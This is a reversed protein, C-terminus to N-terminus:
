LEKEFCISNEVGEYQGYNPIVIYQNKEYLRIAEPQKKGTELVCKNYGLEKSWNELESLIGSAIGMGRKDPRVFMRKVEMVNSSYEKLAGCGVPLQGEYAMVVHKVADTKNFQAYFVHEDGDRITLDIDLEKVLLQFDNDESTTRKLTVSHQNNRNVIDFVIGNDAYVQWSKIRNDEILANWAAPIRWYNSNETDKLNKYTGSAYGYMCFLSKNQLMGTIEITYDPFLDFYYKWAQKLYDKGTSRNDRSDVFVHDDTMLGIMKDIDAHNIADVFDLIVKTYM